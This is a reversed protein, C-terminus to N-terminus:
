SSAGTFTITATQESANVPADPPLYLRFFVNITDNTNIFTFNQCAIYETNVLSLNIWEHQYGTRNSDYSVFSGGGTLDAVSLNQCGGRVPDDRVSFDLRPGTGGIFSSALKNSQVTLNIDDNGDNMVSINDNTTPPDGGVTCVGPAGWSTSTDNSSVNAGITGNPSCSGFDVIADTISISVVSAVTINVMGTTTTAMGSIGQFPLMFQNVKFVTSVTSVLSVVIASLLLISATRNSLQKM